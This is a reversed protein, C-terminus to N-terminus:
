DSVWLVSISCWRKILIKEKIRTSSNLFNSLPLSLFDIFKVLATAPKLSMYQANLAFVIWPRQAILKNSTLADSLNSKCINIFMHHEVNPFTIILKILVIIVKFHERSVTLFPGTQCRIFKNTGFWDKLLYHFLLVVWKYKRKWFIKKWLIENEFAKQM